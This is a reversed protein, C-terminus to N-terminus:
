EEDDESCSPLLMWIAIVPGMDDVCDGLGPYVGPTRLALAEDSEDVIGCCSVFDDVVVVVGLLSPKM